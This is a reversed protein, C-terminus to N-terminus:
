FGEPIGSENEPEEKTSIIYRETTITEQPTQRGRFPDFKDKVTVLSNSLYGQTKPIEFLM